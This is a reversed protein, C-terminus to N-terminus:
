DLLKTYHSVYGRNIREVKSYTVILGEFVTGAKMFIHILQCATCKLDKVDIVQLSGEFCIGGSQPISLLDLHM